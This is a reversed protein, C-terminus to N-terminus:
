SCLTAALHCLLKVALLVAGAVNVRLMGAAWIVRLMVYGAVGAILLHWWNV